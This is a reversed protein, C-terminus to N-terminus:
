VYKRHLTWSLAAAADVMPITGAAATGNVNASLASVSYRTVVPGNGVTGPAPDTTLAQVDRGGGIDLTTAPTTQKMAYGQAAAVYGNISALTSLVIRQRDPDIQLAKSGLAISATAYQETELDTLYDLADGNSTLALLTANEGSGPYQGSGRGLMWTNGSSDVALSIPEVRALSTGNSTRIYKNHASVSYSASLRLLGSFNGSLGQMSLLLDGGATRVMNGEARVDGDSLATGYGHVQEVSSLDPSAQLLYFRKGDAITFNTRRVNILISGSPLVYMSRLETEASDIYYVRGGIYNGNTANIRVLAGSKTRGTYWASTGIIIENGGAAEWVQMPGGVTVTYQMAWAQTGDDNLRWVRTPQPPYTFIDDNIKAVVVCGGASLPVVAPPLSSIGANPAGVRTATWWQQLIVGYPDRKVVVIRADEQGAETFWFAQYSNGSSDVAINGEALYRGATINGATTLRSVWIAPPTDPGILRVAAGVGISAPRAILRVTDVWPTVPAAELEIEIDHCNAYLDVISPRTKYRWTATAWAPAHPLVDLIVAPLQWRGLRQEGDWHARIAATEADSVGRFAMRIEAGTARNMRQFPAVNGAVSQHRRGPFSGPLPTITSCRIAPFDAM